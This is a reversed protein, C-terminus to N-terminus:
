NLEGNAEVEMDSFKIVVFEDLEDPRRTATLKIVENPTYSFELQCDVFDKDTILEVKQGNLKTYIIDLQDKKCDLIRKLVAERLDELKAENLEFYTIDQDKFTLSFKM